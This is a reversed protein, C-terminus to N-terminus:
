AAHVVGANLRSQFDDCRTVMLPKTGDMGLSRLMQAMPHATRGTHLRVSGPLHMHTTGRINVTARLRTGGRRSYLMLSLTRGRMGPGPRGDMTVIVESADPDYVVGYLRQRSFETDIATVFKPYGWLERGGANAIATTVPLHLIHFGLTRAPNDVDMFLERWRWPSASTTEPVVPIAIGVENYAGVGTDRYEFFAVAALVRRGLHLAPQLGSGALAAAAAQPDCLYFVQVCSTDYYLIPLAVDGASTPCTQQEVQFFSDRVAADM